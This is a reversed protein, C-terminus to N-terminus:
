GGNFSLLLFWKLITGLENHALSNFVEARRIFCSHKMFNLKIKMMQFVLSGLGGIAGQAWSYFEFKLASLARWTPQGGM